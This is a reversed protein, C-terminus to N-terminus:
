YSKSIIFYFDANEIDNLEIDMWKFVSKDKLANNFYFFIKLFDFALTNVIKECVVFVIADINHQSYSEITPRCVNVVSCCDALYSYIQKLQIIYQALNSSQWLLFLGILAVRVDDFLFLAYTRAFVYGRCKIAVM